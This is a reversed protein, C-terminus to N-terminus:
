AMRLLQFTSARPSMMLSKTQVIGGILYQLWTQIVAIHPRTASHSQADFLLWRLMEQAHLAVCWYKLTDVYELTLHLLVRRTVNCM